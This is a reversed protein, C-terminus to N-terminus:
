LRILLSAVPIESNLVRDLHRLHGPWFYCPESRQCPAEGHRPVQCLRRRSSLCTARLRSSLSFRSIVM